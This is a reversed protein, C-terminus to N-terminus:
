KEYASVKYIKIFNNPDNNIFYEYELKLSYQAELESWVRAGLMKGRRTSVFYDFEPIRNKKRERELIGKMTGKNAECSGSFFVCVGNYDAWIRLTEAGPLTTLYQAAEYGGYGWADAIIYKESLFSNTYNFYFPTVKGLTFTGVLFCSLFVLARFLTKKKNLSFLQYTGIAALILVVPYLMISYRISLVVKQQMSACIVVLIFFSFVFVLWRFDDTKRFQRLWGYVLALIVLPSISFAVPLFQMLFIQWDKLKRFITGVSADFPFRFISFWDHGSFGSILVLSFIIPLTAFLLFQFIKQAWFLNRALAL